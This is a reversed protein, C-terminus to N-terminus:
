LMAMFAQCVNKVHTVMLISAASEVCVLRKMVATVTMFTQTITVSANEVRDVVNPQTVLTILTVDTVSTISIVLRANAFSATLEKRLTVSKRLSIEPHSALVSVSKQLNALCWIVVRGIGVMRSGKM